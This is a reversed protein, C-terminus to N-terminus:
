FGTDSAPINVEYLTQAAPDLALAKCLVEVDVWGSTLISSGQTAKIRVIAQNLSNIDLAINQSEVALWNFTILQGTAQDEIQFTDFPCVTEDSGPAVLDSKTFIVTKSSAQTNPVHKTITSAISNMTFSACEVVVRM